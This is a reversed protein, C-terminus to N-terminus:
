VDSSATLARVRDMWVTKCTPCLDIVVFDTTPIVGGGQALGYQQSLAQVHQPPTGTYIGYCYKFPMTITNGCNDCYTRTAM